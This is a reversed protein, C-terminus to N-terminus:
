VQTESSLLPKVVRQRVNVVFCFSLIPFIFWLKLASPVSLMSVLAAVLIVGILSWFDKKSKLDVLCLIPVLCLGLDYYVTHPSVLVVTPGLLMLCYFVSGLNKNEKCKPSQWTAHAVFLFLFIAATWGVANILESLPAGAVAALANAV